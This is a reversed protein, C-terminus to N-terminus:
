GGTKTHAPATPAAAIVPVQPLGDAWVMNVATHVTAGEGGVSGLQQSLQGATIGAVPVGTDQWHSTLDLPGLKVGQDVWATNGPGSEITFSRSIAWWAGGIMVLVVLVAAGILL